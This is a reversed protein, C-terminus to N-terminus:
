RGTGKGSGAYRFSLKKVNAYSCADLVQIVRTHQSM